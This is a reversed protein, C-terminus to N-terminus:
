AAKSRGNAKSTLHRIAPQVLLYLLAILILSAVPGFIIDILGPTSSLFMNILNNVAAVLPFVLLLATFIRIGIGIKKYRNPLIACLLLPFILGLPIILESMISISQSEETGLGGSAMMAFSSFVVALSISLIFLLIRSILTM